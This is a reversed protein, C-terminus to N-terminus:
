RRRGLYAAVVAPNNKIEQPTGAALFEGRDLVVIRDCIQMVAKMNHEVLMITTKYDDRIRRFIMLVRGVETQNLGTLPEDLCLLRPRTAFAVAISVLRQLGHPLSGVVEGLFDTLNLLEATECIRQERDAKSRITSFTAVLINDRVTMERLYSDHQFTRVLGKHCVKHPKLHSIDQGEFRLTGESPPLFGSVVNFTTSKGAGNPGILGFIEGKYVDFSLNSVAALGGFRRSMNRVQLLVDTVM